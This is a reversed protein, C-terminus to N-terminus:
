FNGKTLIIALLVLLACGGIAELTMTSSDESSQSPNCSAKAADEGICCVKITADAQVLLRM